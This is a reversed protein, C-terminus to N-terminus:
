SRCASPWPRGRGRPWCRWGTRCGWPSVIASNESSRFSSCRSRRSQTCPKAASTTRGAAASHSSRSSNGQGTSRLLRGLDPEVAEVEDGGALGVGGAEDGASRWALLEEPAVGADAQRMKPVDGRRRRWGRGAAGGLLDHSHTGWHKPSAPRGRADPREAGGLGVGAGVDARHAGPGHVVLGGVLPHECPVLAHTVLPPIASTCTTSRADTSGSARSARALGREDHRRAGVPEACPWFNALCPMRADCVASTTRSSTRTGPRQRSPPLSFSSAWSARARSAPALRPWRRRMACTRAVRGATPACATPM